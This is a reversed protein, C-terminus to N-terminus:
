TQTMAVVFFSAKQRIIGPYSAPHRLGDRGAVGTLKVVLTDATARSYGAAM